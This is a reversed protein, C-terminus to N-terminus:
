MYCFFFPGLVSGQPVACTVKLLKSYVNDITTFQFRNSLYSVFWNYTIGRIGYQYIKHLLIEHYVTDFAKQLDLYISVVTEHNDLKSYFNDLVDILALVTSHNRRFGFQNKYLVNHEILFKYLRAYM